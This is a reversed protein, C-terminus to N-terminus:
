DSIPARITVGADVLATRVRRGLSTAGPTDGHLCITAPRLSLARGDRTLVVGSSALAVARAAVVEPDVLVAGPEGRPVLSGDAAYGRDAFAEGIAAHGSSRLAEFGPSAAALVIPAGPLAARAGGAVAIAIAADAAALNYLSGHPKVFSVRAGRSASIRALRSVQEGVLREIEKPDRTTARRGFGDRDPFGPHAGIVVGHRAALDITRRMTEHDGAHGGCAISASTLLPVFDRDDFGEGVDGNLDIETRGVDPPETATM